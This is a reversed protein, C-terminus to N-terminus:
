RSWGRTMAAREAQADLPNGQIHEAMVGLLAVTRTYLALAVVGSDSVRRRGIGVEPPM